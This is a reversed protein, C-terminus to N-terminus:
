VLIRENPALNPDDESRSLFYQRIDDRFGPKGPVLQYVGQYDAAIDEYPTYHHRALIVDRTSYGRKTKTGHWYHIAHGDTYGVNKDLAKAKRRWENVYHKYDPHYAQSHIDPPEVGILSYAMYWDAHGLICRDLLGGVTDLATRRFALAGGTAGVGRMFVGAVEQKGAKADSGSAKVRKGDPGVLGNHYQPSVKYGNQVYNFFFGSNYRTPMQAQGYVNGSLDEYSSFPQVFQYHQLQHITELAWDHRTFHFDGDIACGYQWGVPFHRIAISQLNEKHFLEQSARLQVDRPNDPSTVEFPRDGYALEAVYLRVNPCSQMHWRFNNFLKRRTEWRFPNSYAVAVHLVQDESWQSAARQVDPHQLNM